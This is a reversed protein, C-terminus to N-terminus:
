APPLSVGNWIPLVDALEQPEFNPYPLDSANALRNMQPAHNWMVVAIEGYRRPLVVRGLDPGMDGGRGRISHCAVCQKTRFLVEGRSASPPLLYDKGQPAGSGMSHIYTQLDVMETGQFQPFAVNKQNLVRFMGSAHNWMAAVWAVPNRYSAVSSLDPGVQAGQGAIAHCEACRKSQFLQRGAKANGPPDFSRVMGLFAFLDEMEEGEFSPLEFHEAQMRQWM